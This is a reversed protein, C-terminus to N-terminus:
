KWSLFDLYFMLSITVKIVPGAGGQRGEKGCVSLVINSYGTKYYIRFTSYKLKYNQIKIATKLVFHLYLCLRALKSSGGGEM